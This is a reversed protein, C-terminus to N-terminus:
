WGILSHIALIYWSPSRYWSARKLGCVVNKLTQAFHVSINHPRTPLSTSHDWIALVPLNLNIIWSYQPFQGTEAPIYWWSGLTFVNVQHFTGAPFLTFSLRAALRYISCLPYKQWQPSRNLYLTYCIKSQTNCTHDDCQTSRFKHYCCSTMIFCLRWASSM